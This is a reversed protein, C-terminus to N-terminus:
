DKYFRDPFWMKKYMSISLLAKLGKLTEPMLLEASSGEGLRDMAERNVTHTM